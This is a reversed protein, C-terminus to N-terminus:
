HLLDLFVEKIKGFDLFCSMIEKNSYKDMVKDVYVTYVASSLQFPKTAENTIHVGIM